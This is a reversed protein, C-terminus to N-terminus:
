APDRRTADESTGVQDRGSEGPANVFLDATTDEYRLQWDNTKRLMLSLPSNHPILVWGIDFRRLVEEWGPSLRYVKMYQSAIGDPRTDQDQGDIFVSYKPYGAYLIYGGWNYYNFLNGRAGVQEARALAEVPFVAPSFASAQSSTAYTALIAVSLLMPLLPRGLARDMAAFGQVPGEQKGRAAASLPLWSPVWAKLADEAIRAVIPLCTIVFLPINRVSHFGLYAWTVLMLASWTDVAKPLKAMALASILVLALFMEPAASHFDPSAFEAIISLLNGARLYGVVFSFVGFGAPNVVVALVSAVAMAGLALVRRRERLSAVICIGTLIFGLVFGGHLNVWLLMMIPCAVLWRQRGQRMYNVLCRTWLLALLISFLHPRALWHISSALMGMVAFALALLPNLGDRTMWRVLLLFPLAILVTSLAAVGALGLLSEVAAFIVESLWEYPVFPFGAKTYSFLDELPVSRDAIIQRGAVLHRALDGDTNLLQVPGLTLVLVAAIAFALDATSPLLWRAWAGPERQVNSRTQPGKGSVEQSAM